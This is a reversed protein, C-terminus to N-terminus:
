AGEPMVIEVYQEDLGHNITEYRVVAGPNSSVTLDRLAVTAQIPGRICRLDRLKGDIPVRARYDAIRPM